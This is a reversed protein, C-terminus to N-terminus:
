ILQRRPKMAKWLALVADFDVEHLTPGEHSHNDAQVTISSATPKRLRDKIQKMGSFYREVTAISVSLVMAFTLLININPFTM